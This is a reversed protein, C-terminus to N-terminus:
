EVRSAGALADNDVAVEATAEGPDGASTQADGGRSPDREPDYLRYATRGNVRARELVPPETNLLRAVAARIVTEPPNKSPLVWGRADFQERFDKITRWDDRHAVAAVADNTKRPQGRDPVQPVPETARGPGSTASGNDIAASSSAAGLAVENADLRYVGDVPGPEVAAALDAEDNDEDALEPWVTTLGAMLKDLGVGLRAYHLERERARARKERSSVYLEKAVAFDEINLDV